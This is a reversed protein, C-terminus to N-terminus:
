SKIQLPDLFYMETAGKGKVKLKGRAECPFHNKIIDFTSQSLNIKGPEGHTEMRAATNVTDGWIDYQFKKQGVIGSVVPGTHIGIRVDFGRGVKDKKRDRVYECIEIAAKTTQLAHDQSPVPLGGAAMYADGITKIKEIGYKEVIEDFVKFFEDLEIVLENPDMGSSRATFDKFDTFLVSVSEYFRPKAFGNKKLEEATEFPLINYLLEDTKKKERSLERTREEVKHELNRYLLANDISIAIQTSLLSLLEVRNQTFAASTSRNELYLVGILRGQNLIPLAMTSRVQNKSLYTDRAFQQNQSADDLVIKEQTRIVFQIISAPLEEFETMRAHQLVEEQKNSIDKLAEVFWENNENKLLFIGRQAGANEIALHLLAALLDSLVVKGSISAASKIVTAMDLQQGSISYSSSSALNISHDLWNKNIHELYKRELFQTKAKAGWESYAIYATKLYHLGLEQRGINLLHHAALERALAEEHIFGYRSAGTIAKEYYDIVKTEFTDSVLLEARILHAKHRFNEPATKAWKELKRASRSAIKKYKRKKAGDRQMLQAAALGRYFYLNPIEFKGLVADLLPIAQDSEELSKQPAGFHFHLTSSLFHIFFTGTKDKREANQVRMKDEDYADGVLLRPEESRGMFNLMAQRYIENYYLNTEQKLQRYNDSFSRTEKEIRKLPKGSLFAHICYINTNVCAFEVLGTEMGIQWSERLPKLTKDVHGNWHFVLAYPSVYIQAKWEKADLKELLELSLNAFAYGKKMFGLVGCLIVGYSGYAFCSVPNNGNKLSIAIMKFVVLPTMNPMAWYVSSTIDAIIRMAAIKTPDVMVPLNLLDDMSKGRLRLMTAALGTFIHFKNPKRPLPEGLQELFDLGTHIAELLKNQAKKALILTEYAKLKDLVGRANEDVEHFFSKMDEFDGCLYAAEAAETKLSLTLDYHDSWCNAPLCKQGAQFYDAASNFASNKKARQGASLNLQALELKLEENEILARGLNLQDTIEFLREERAEQDLTHLLMTGIAFHYKVREVDSPLSYVAQQIRDHSFKCRDYDLQIILGDEIASYLEEELQERELQHIASVTSLDFQNGICTATKLLELTAEPLKVINKVLLDVVNDTINANRIQEIKWDWHFQDPDLFLLGEKAITELFEVTFFANGRTKNYVLDALEAAEAPARLTADAVMEQLHKQELNGVKLHMTETGLDEIERLTQALPHAHPVENDRYAGLCLFYGGQKQSMFFELFKLSASDAWQLDDLFMVLPHEKKAICHIFKALLYNIRARSETPGVEPVPAQEGILLQLNPIIDTLVKGEDGLMDVLEGKLFQVKEESESLLISVYQRLSEIIAFYPSSRRYQDYKGSIFYGNRATIPKHIENVLVTKGTGSYGSVMALEKRGSAAREFVRLLLDVEKERGYLKQPLIFKGTIHKDSLSFDPIEGQERWFAICKEIDAKVGYASQYRDEANKRLLRLVIRDIAPPLDSRWASPPRPEVAIHSHVIEIAEKGEFPKRGTLMQYFCVGLSYLDSRHDTKRNMRGTQEPSIYYINGKLQDPNGLYEQRHDVKSALGLDIITGTHTSTDILINDGNLDLHIIQQAHLDGLVQFLHAVIQLSSALDETPTQYLEQITNGPVYDLLLAHRGQYKLQKRAKRVGSVHLTKSIRWENQFQRVEEPSPFDLNLVKLIEKEGSDHSRLYIKSRATERMFDDRYNANAVTM